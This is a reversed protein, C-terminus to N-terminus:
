PTQPLRRVNLRCLISSGVDEYDFVKDNHGAFGTHESNEADTLHLWGFDIPPQRIWGDQRVGSSYPTQSIRKFQGSGRTVIPMVADQPLKRETEVAPNM